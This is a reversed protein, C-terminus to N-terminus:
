RISLKQGVTYPEIRKLEILRNLSIIWHIKQNVAPTVILLDESDATLSFFVKEQCIKSGYFFTFLFAVAFQWSELWDKSKRYVENYGQRSFKLPINRMMPWQIAWKEDTTLNLEGWRIIDNQDAKNSKQRDVFFFFSFLKAMKDNPRAIPEHRVGTSFFIFM